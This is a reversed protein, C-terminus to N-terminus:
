EDIEMENVSLNQMDSILDAVKPGPFQDDDDDDDDEEEEEVDSFDSGSYEEREKKYLNVQTWLDPDEELDQLFQEQDNRDNTQKLQNTLIIPPPNLSNM